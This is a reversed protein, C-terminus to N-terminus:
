IKPYNPMKLTPKSQVKYAAQEAAQEAGSLSLLLIV